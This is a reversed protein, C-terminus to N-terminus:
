TIELNSPTNGFALYLCVWHSIRQVFNQFINYEHTQLVIMDSAQWRLKETTASRDLLATCRELLQPSSSSPSAAQQGPTEYTTILSGVSTISNREPERPTQTDLPNLDDMGVDFDPIGSEFAADGVLMDFWKSVAVNFTPQSSTASMPVFSDNSGLSFPTPAYAPLAAAVPSFVQQTTNDSTTNGSMAFTAFENQTSRGHSNSHNPSRSAGIRPQTAESLQSYRGLQEPSHFQQTAQERETDSELVPCLRRDIKQTM